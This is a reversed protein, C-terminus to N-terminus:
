ISRGLSAFFTALANRVGSWTANPFVGDDVVGTHMWYGAIRHGSPVASSPSGNNNNAFVMMEVTPVADASPDADGQVLTGTRIRALDTLTRRRVVHMGTYGGAGSQTGIGSTGWDGARFSSTAPAYYRCAVGTQSCGMLTRNGVSTAANFALMLGGIASRPVAGTRFYVSGDSVMGQSEVYNGTGGNVITDVPNGLRAVLPVLSGALNQTADGGSGAYLNFRDIASWVGLLQLENVLAVAAAKVSSSITGNNAAIRVAWDDVIGVPSGKDKRYIDAGVGIM